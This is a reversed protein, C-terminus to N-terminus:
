MKTKLEAIDHFEQVEQVESHRINEKSKISDLNIIDLKRWKDRRDMFIYM